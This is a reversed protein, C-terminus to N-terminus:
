FSTSEDGVSQTLGGLFDASKLMREFQSPNATLLASERSSVGMRTCPM